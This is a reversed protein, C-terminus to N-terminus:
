FLHFSTWSAQFVCICTFNHVARQWQWVPLKNCLSVSRRQGLCGSNYIRLATNCWFFIGLHHYSSTEKNWRPLPCWGGWSLMENIKSPIEKQSQGTGLQHTVSWSIYHLLFQLCNILIQPLAFNGDGQMYNATKEVGLRAPSNTPSSFYGEWLSM